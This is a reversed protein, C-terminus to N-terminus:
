QHSQQQGAATGRGGGGAVEVRSQLGCLVQRTSFVKCLGKHTNQLFTLCSSEGSCNPPLQGIALPGMRMGM